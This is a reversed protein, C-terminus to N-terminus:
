SQNPFSFVCPHKQKVFKKVKVHLENDLKELNNEDMNYSKLRWLFFLKSTNRTGIWFWSQSEKYDGRWSRSSKYVYTM